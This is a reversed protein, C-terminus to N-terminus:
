KADRMSLIYAILNETDERPVILNPMSPHPTRLWVTIAISTMGPTNAVTRFPTAKDLPSVDQDKRVAHCESCIQTAYALGKAADGVDQAQAGSTLLAFGVLAALARPSAARRTHRTSLSVSSPSQNM